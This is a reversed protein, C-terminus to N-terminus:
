LDVRSMIFVLLTVGLYAGNLLGLECSAVM